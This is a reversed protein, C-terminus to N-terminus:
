ILGNNRLPSFTLVKSTENTSKLFSFNAADDAGFTPQFNFGFNKNISNSTAGSSNLFSLNSNQKQAASSSKHAQASPTTTSSNKTPTRSLSSVTTSTNKTPTCSETSVISFASTKSIQLGALIPNSHRKESVPTVLGKDRAPLM